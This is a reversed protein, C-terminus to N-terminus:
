ILGRKRKLDDLEKQKQMLDAFEQMRQAEHEKFYLYCFKLFRGLGDTNSVKEHSFGHEKQTYLLLGKRRKGVKEAEMAMEAFLVPKLYVKLCVSKEGVM